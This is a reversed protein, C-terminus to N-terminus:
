STVGKACDICGGTSLYRYGTHGKGCPKGTRFVKLGLAEAASRSIVLEPNSEMMISDPSRRADTGSGSAVGRCGKCAGTHVNRQALTGCKSCPSDPTYWTEGAAIAVQRPKPKKREEECFYCKNELTRIGYHGAKSCPDGTVWLKLDKSAAEKISIPASLDLIGAIEELEQQYTDPVIRNGVPLVAGPADYSTFWGEFCQDFSMLGRVYSYLDCARSQACKWCVGNKTYFVHHGCEPCVNEPDLYRVTRYTKGNEWGVPLSHPTGTSDFYVKNSM